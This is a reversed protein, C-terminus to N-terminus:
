IGSFPVGRHTTYSGLADTITVVCYSAAAALSVAVTLKIHGRADVVPPPGAATFLAAGAGTFFSVTASVLPIDLGRRKGFIDIELTTANIPAFGIHVQTANQALEINDIDTLTQGAITAEYEAALQFTSTPLTGTLVAAALNIGGDLAFFNSGLATMPAQRLIFAAQKFTSDGFDLFFPPVQTRNQDRIAVVAASASPTSPSVSLSAPVNTDDRSAKIQYGM